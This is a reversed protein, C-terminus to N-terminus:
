KNKVHWAAYEDYLKNIDKSLKQGRFRNVFEEKTFSFEVPIQVNGSVFMTEKPKKVPTVKEVSVSAGKKEVKM